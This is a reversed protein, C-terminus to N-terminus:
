METELSSTKMAPPICPCSSGRREHLGVRPPPQPEKHSRPPWDSDGYYEKGRVLGRVAPVSPRWWLDPLSRSQRRYIRCIPVTRAPLGRWKSRSRRSSKTQHNLNRRWKSPDPAAPCHPLMEPPSYLSPVGSTYVPWNSRSPTCNTCHHRRHSSSSSLRLRLNSFSFM